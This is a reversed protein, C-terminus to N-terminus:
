PGSGESGARYDQGSASRQPDVSPWPGGARARGRRAGRLQYVAVMGAIVLGQMVLRGPEGVNMMTLLSQLLVMVLAGAITGSLGGQGGAFSTGGIVVAAISNLGYGAGVSMSALGIYASLLLGAGAALVSTLAYSLVLVRTVPIGSLRATQPNGGTAYLRRGFGTKRLLIAMLIVVAAWILGAVPLGGVWGEAIVRFGPAIKGTPSGHTYVLYGGQIVTGMALTAIFPPIKLKAVALGNITGVAAAITLVFLLASPITQDGAAMLAAAVVNTLTIVAEVSLDIGGVLLALTQGVALVGLPAAQRVLDLLHGTTMSQPSVVAMIALIILLFVYVGLSELARRNLNLHLGNPRM